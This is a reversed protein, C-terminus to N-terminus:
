RLSLHTATSQQHAPSTTTAQVRTTPVAAAL